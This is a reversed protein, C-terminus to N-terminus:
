MNQRRNSQVTGVSLSSAAVILLVDPSIGSLSLAAGDLYGQQNTMLWGWGFYQGLHQARTADEGVDYGNMTIQNTVQIEITDDDDVAGILLKENGFDLTCATTSGDKELCSVRHLM